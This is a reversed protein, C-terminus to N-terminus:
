DYYNEDVYYTDDTDIGLNEACDTSNKHDYIWPSGCCGCGKIWLDYKMSLDSLEKLFNELREKDNM